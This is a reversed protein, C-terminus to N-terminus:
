MGSDILYEESKRKWILINGGGIKNLMHDPNTAGMSGVLIVHKLRHERALDIQDKQGLWDIQPVLPCLPM